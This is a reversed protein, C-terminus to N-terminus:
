FQFQLQSRIMFLSNNQMGAFNPSSSAIPLDDIYTADLSLKLDQGSIYYNFGGVYEYCDNSNDVHVGGVRAVLELKPAIFYGSQAYWGYNDVELGNIGSADRASGFASTFAVETGDLDAHQYFGELTVSLGNSKYSLDAGFLTTEGGASVTDTRGDGNKVLVTYKGDAGVVFHDETRANAYAFSVGVQAVPEAHGILDSENAFDKPTAGLLPVVFRAAVAPNNDNGSFPSSTADRFGNYIGTRYYVKTDALPCEGFLEVGTSRGINFVSSALSRDVLMLNAASTNFQKDFAGKFRGIHVGLEPMFSYSLKYDLLSTSNGSDDDMQLQIFYKVDKMVHGTLKIRVRELEFASASSDVGDDTPLGESTRNKDGDDAFLYSHRFQLLTDFQLLFQDDSSKIFFRKDYGATLATEQAQRYPSNALESVMQRLLEANRQEVMEQSQQAELEMVRQQLAEVQTRLETDAAGYTTSGFLMLMLMVTVIWRKM